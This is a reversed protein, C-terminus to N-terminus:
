FLPLQFLSMGPPDGVGFYITDALRDSVLLCLSVVKEKYPKNKDM